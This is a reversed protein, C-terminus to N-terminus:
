AAERSHAGTRPAPGGDGLGPLGGHDGRLHRYARDVEMPQPFTGAEWKGVQGAPTGLLEGMQARTRALEERIATLEDPALLGDRLRVAAAVRRLSEDMMGGGYFSEGCDVCRYVTDQVTINRFGPVTFERPATVLPAEGDCLHCHEM